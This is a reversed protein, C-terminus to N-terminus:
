TELTVLLHDTISSLWVIKLGLQNNTNWLAYSFNTDYNKFIVIDM